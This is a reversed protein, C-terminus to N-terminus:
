IIGYCALLFALVGIFLSAGGILKIGDVWDTEVVYVATEGERPPPPITNSTM